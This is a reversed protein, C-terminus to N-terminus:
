RRISLLLYLIGLLAIGILIFAGGIIAKAIALKGYTDIWDGFIIFALKTYLNNLSDGILVWILPVVIFVFIMIKFPYFNLFLKNRDLHNM